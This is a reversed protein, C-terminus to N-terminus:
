NLLEGAEEDKYINGTSSQKLASHYYFNINPPRKLCYDNDDDSSDSCCQKRKQIRQADTLESDSALDSSIEAVKLKRKAIAYDGSLYITDSHKM